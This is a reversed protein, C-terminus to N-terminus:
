KDIRGGVYGFLSRELGTPDLIHRIGLLAWRHRVQIGGTGNGFDPRDRYPDSSHVEWDGRISLGKFRIEALLFILAVPTDKPVVHLVPIKVPLHSFAELKLVGGRFFLAVVPQNYYLARRGPNNSKYREWPIKIAANEESLPIDLMFFMVRRAAFGAGLKKYISRGAIFGIHTRFHTISKTRIDPRTIHGEFDGGIEFFWKGMRLNPRLSVYPAYVTEFNSRTIATRVQVSLPTEIQALIPLTLFILLYKM